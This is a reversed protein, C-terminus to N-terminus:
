FREHFSDGIRSAFNIPCTARLILLNIIKKFAKIIIAKLVSNVKVVASM